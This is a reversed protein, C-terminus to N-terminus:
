GGTPLYTVWQFAGVQGPARWTGLEYLAASNQFMAPDAERTREVICADPLLDYRKEDLYM